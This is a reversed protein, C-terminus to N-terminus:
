PIHTARYSFGKLRANTKSGTDGAGLSRAELHYRPPERALRTLAADSRTTKTTAM